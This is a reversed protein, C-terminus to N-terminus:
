FRCVVGMSPGFALINRNSRGRIETTYVVGLRLGTHKPGLEFHVGGSHVPILEVKDEANWNNSVEIGLALDTQVALWRMAFFRGAYLLEFLGAWVHSDPPDSYNIGPFSARLVLFQHDRVMRGVFLGISRYVWTESAPNLRTDVDAGALWIPSTTRNDSHSSAECITGSMFLIACIGARTLDRCEAIGRISNRTM